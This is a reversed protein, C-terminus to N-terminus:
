CQQPHESRSIDGQELRQRVLNLTAETNNEGPSAFYVIKRENM